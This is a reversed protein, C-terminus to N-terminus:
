MKLLSELESLQANIKELEREIEEREREDKEKLHYLEEALNLALSFLRSSDLPKPPAGFLERLRADLFRAVELLTQENEARLRYKKGYIELEKEIV